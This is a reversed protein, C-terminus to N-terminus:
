LQGVRPTPCGSSKGPGLGHAQGILQPRPLPHASDCPVFCPQRLSGRSCRRHIPCLEKSPAKPLSTGYLNIICEALGPDVTALKKKIKM